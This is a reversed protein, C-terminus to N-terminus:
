VELPKPTKTSFGNKLREEGMEPQGNSQAKM